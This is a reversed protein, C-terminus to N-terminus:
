IERKNIHFGITKTSQGKEKLCFESKHAWIKFQQGETYYTIEYEIRNQRICIATIFGDIGALKLKVETGCGHLKLIKGKKM